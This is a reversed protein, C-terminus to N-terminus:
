VPHPGSTREDCAENGEHCECSLAKEQKPKRGTGTGTGEDTKDRQVGKIRAKGGGSDKQAEDAARCESASRHSVRKHKRM